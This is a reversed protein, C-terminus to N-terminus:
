AARRVLREDLVALRAELEEIRAPDSGWEREVALDPEIAQRETEDELSPSCVFAAREFQYERGPGALAPADFLAGQEPESAAPEDATAADGAAGPGTRHDEEGPGGHAGPRNGAATAVSRGRETPRGSFRSAPSSGAGEVKALDREESQAVAARQPGAPSVPGVAVESGVAPSSPLREPAGGSVGRTRRLVEIDARAREGLTGEIAAPEPPVGVLEYGDVKPDGDRPARKVNVVDYGLKRLDSARSNPRTTIAVERLEANSHWQGDALAELMLSTHTRSM